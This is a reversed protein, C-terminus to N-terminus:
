RGDDDDPMMMMMVVMMMMVQSSDPGTTRLGSLVIWCVLPCQFCQRIASRSGSHIKLVEFLFLGYHLSIIEDGDDDDDDDGDDDAM